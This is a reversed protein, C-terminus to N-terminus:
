KAVTASLWELDGLTKYWALLATAACSFAESEDGWRILSPLQKLKKETM